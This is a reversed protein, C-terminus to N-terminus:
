GTLCGTSPRFLVSGLAGGGHANKLILASTNNIDTRSIKVIKTFCHAKEFDVAAFAEAQGFKNAACNRGIRYERMSPSRITLLDGEVIGNITCPFVLKSISFDLEASLLSTSVAQLVEPYISTASYLSVVSSLARCFPHCMGGFIAAYRMYSKWVFNTNNVWMRLLM